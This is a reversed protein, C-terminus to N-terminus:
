IKFLRVMTFHLAQLLLTFYFSIRNVQELDDQLSWYWRAQTPKQFYIVIEEDIQTHGFHWILYFHRPSLVLVGAFSARHQLSSRILVIFLVCIAAHLLLLMLQPSLVFDSSISSVTFVFISIANLRSSGLKKAFSLSDTVQFLLLSM